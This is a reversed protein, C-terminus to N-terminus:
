EPGPSGSGKGPGACSGTPRPSVGTESREPPFRPLRATSEPVTEDGRRFRAGPIPSRHRAVDERLIRRIEIISASTEQVSHGSVIIKESAAGQLHASRYPVLGDDSDALAGDARQRAIISHYSVRDSIPLEGTAEVFPDNQDLQDISNPITQLFKGFSSVSTGARVQFINGFNELVTLPLRILGSVWRALTRGAVVTGRHPTAIFIAREVGPFPQFRLLPELRSRDSGIRDLDIRPDSEAWEWLQEDATSIMLRAIVGGMSHGILVLGHSAPSQGRCDFNRLADALLRRIAAHNAAIPMNTPYYVQWIQFERRLEDDGLLENAVNVWAEPSSALGHLMVVIRRGPDFPQMLYLHPADIGKERGMLGRLSQRSFGSRALWLGYGATFNGVLPVRQGRVVLDSEVLPDHVGIVVERTRLLEDLSAADFRFVATVNPSPMESWASRARPYPGPAQEGSGRSARDGDGDASAARDDDMVAVLEAGFGDRRYTSRLGHFALSSAPLLERPLEAVGLRARMEVRVTWDGVRLVPELERARARPRLGRAGFLRAVAQQVAHNYWDRVQTQRDEFAREGPSRATFFLYAWAHRAVEIWADIARAEDAGAGVTSVSMARQLWLEALASLRPEDAIDRVSRLAAICSAAIPATCAQRELGAARLTQVTADSLRNATLVDGRRLAIAERPTIAHVAVSPQFEGVVACGGAAGAALLLILRYSAASRL